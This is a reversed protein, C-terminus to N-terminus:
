SPRVLEATNAVSAARIRDLDPTLTQSSGSARGVGTRAKATRWGQAVIVDVGSAVARQAEEVSGVTHMVIGGVDHVQEM